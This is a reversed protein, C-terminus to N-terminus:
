GVTVGTGEELCTDRMKRGGNSFESVQGSLKSDHQKELMWRQGAFM